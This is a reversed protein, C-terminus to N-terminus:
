GCRSGFQWPFGFHSNQHDTVLRDKIVGHHPGNGETEAITMDGAFSAGAVNGSLVGLIANACRMSNALHQM